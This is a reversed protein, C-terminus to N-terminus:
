KESEGLAKRAIKIRLGCETDYHTSTTPKGITELAERLREIEDAAEAITMEDVYPGRLRKVLDTM